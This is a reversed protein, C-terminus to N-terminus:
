LERGDDRGRDILQEHGTVNNGVYGYRSCHGRHQALMRWGFGGFDGLGGGVDACPDRACFCACLMGRIHSTAYRHLPLLMAWSVREAIIKIIACTSSAVPSTKCSTISRTCRAPARLTCSRALRAFFPRGPWTKSM